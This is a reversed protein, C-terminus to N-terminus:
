CIARGILVGLIFGLVAVVLMARLLWEDRSRDSDVWRDPDRTLRRVQRDAVEQQFHAADRMERWGM